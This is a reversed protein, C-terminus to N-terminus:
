IWNSKTRLPNRSTISSWFKSPVQSELKLGLAELAAFIDPDSNNDGALQDSVFDLIIDFIGDLGTM